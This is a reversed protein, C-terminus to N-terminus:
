SQSLEPDLDLAGQLGIFDLMAKKSNIYDIFPKIINDEGKAKKVTHRAISGGVRKSRSSSTKKHYSKDNQATKAQRSPQTRLSPTEKESTAMTKNIENPVPLLM